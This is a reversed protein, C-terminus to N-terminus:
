GVWQYMIESSGGAIWQFVLEGRHYDVVVAKFLGRLAGNVKKRTTTPSEFAKQLLEVKRDLMSRAVSELWVQLGREDSWLAM